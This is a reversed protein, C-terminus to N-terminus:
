KEKKEEPKKDVVIKEDMNAITWATFFVLRARKEMLDFNIKDVEDTEKHYDAHTGNFYFIVPINNKAFNYHDSRFYFRNKDKIDNYRYDLTLSSYWQSAKENAEHLKTSLMNSGIIYIYNISDKHKEDIRGIMDINLDCVTNTLPFIPNAVYYKSGLLGKEEGSVTMLVVSRRPGCGEKKAKMFAEAIEIVSVTGSGDDDAGNYVKEDHVGLHDYHATIFIVQDKLDSGEIYGIVNETMIPETSQKFDITIKAKLAESQQDKKESIVKEATKFNKLKKSKSLIEDAMKKSIFIVPMEKGDPKELSLSPSEFFHKSKKIWYDFDDVVYLVAKAGQKKAEDTKETYDKTWKSKENKGKVLSLSDKDYPENDFMLIIKNKVEIKEYDNYKNDNIGYGLFVIEEKIIAEFSTGKFYYFDELMKYEKSEIKIVTNLSISPYVAFPQFYLGDKMPPIGSKKFQGAIYNASKKQGEKGTERGEYEDSALITLHKKLDASTITNAYKIAFSDKVQAKASLSLPFLLVFFIKKM